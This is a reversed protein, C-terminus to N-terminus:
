MVLLRWIGRDSTPIVSYESLLIQQRVESM